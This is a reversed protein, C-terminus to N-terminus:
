LGPQPEHWEMEVAVTSNLEIQISNNPASPMSQLALIYIALRLLPCNTFKVYGRVLSIASHCYQCSWCTPKQTRKFDMEIEMGILWELSIGSFVARVPSGGEPVCGWSSKCQKGDSGSIGYLYSLDQHSIISCSLPAKQKITPKFLQPSGDANVCPKESQPAGIVTNQGKRPTSPMEM